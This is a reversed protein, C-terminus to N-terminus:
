GRPAGGRVGGPEARLGGGGGRAVAPRINTRFGFIKQIAVAQSFNKAIEAKPTELGIEIM